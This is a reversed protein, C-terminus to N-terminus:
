AYFVLVRRDNPNKVFVLLGIGVFALAVFSAIALSAVFVPLRIPSALRMTVDRMTKGAGIRYTVADGTKLRKDLRALAAQDKIPIGNISVLADGSKIGANAAPAGPYTMFVTSPKIGWIARPAKGSKTEFPPMYTVGVTGRRDWDRLRVFGYGVMTGLVIITAALALIVRANRPM